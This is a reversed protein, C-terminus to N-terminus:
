KAAAMLASFDFAARLYKRGKETLPARCAHPRPRRVLGHEVLIALATSGHSYGFASKLVGEAIVARKSMSGFNANAHVRDVEADPIIEQPTM